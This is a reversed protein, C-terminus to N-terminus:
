KGWNVSIQGVDAIDVVGDNNVDPRIWGEPGTEGWHVSVQGVDAIDIAGDENVDWDPYASLGIRLPRM